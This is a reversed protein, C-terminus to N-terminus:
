LVEQRQVTEQFPKQSHIESDTANPPLPRLPTKYVILPLQSYLLFFEICPQPERRHLGHNQPSYVVSLKLCLTQM